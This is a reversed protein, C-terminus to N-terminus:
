GLNLRQKAEEVLEKVGRIMQEEQDDKMREYVWDPVLPSTIRNELIENQLARSEIEARQDSVKKAM